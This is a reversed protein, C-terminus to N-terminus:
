GELAALIKEATKKGIGKIDVLEKLTAGRVDELCERGAAVLAERGPFDEPLPTCPSGRKKAEFAAALGPEGRARAAAAKLRHYRRLTGIGM